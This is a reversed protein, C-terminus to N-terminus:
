QCEKDRLERYTIISDLATGIPTGMYVIETAYDTDVEAGEVDCGLLECTEAALAEMQERLQAAKNSIGELREITRMEFRVLGKGCYQVPPLPSRNLLRVKRRRFYDILSRM